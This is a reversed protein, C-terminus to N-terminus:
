AAVSLGGPVNVSMPPTTAPGSEMRNNFWCATLWVRAGAATETPLMVDHVNKTTNGAFGWANVDAPPDEGVFFFLSAGKVGAPKGGKPVGTEHVRVRVTHGFVSVIDIDPWTQPVPVPNPRGDPIRINLASRLDNNMGPFAQCINVLQWAGGPGYKLAQMATNKIEVNTKSNTAPDIATAYATAFATHLTSYATAQAAVLGYIVPDATISNRFSTSWALFDSEKRQPFPPVPM